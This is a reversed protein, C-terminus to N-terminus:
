RFHACCIFQNTTLPQRRQAAAQSRQITRVLIAGTLANRQDLARVDALVHRRPFQVFRYDDVLQPSM